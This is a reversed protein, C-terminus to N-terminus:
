AKEGHAVPEKSGAWVVQPPAPDYPNQIAYLLVERMTNPRVLLHAAAFYLSWPSVTPAM